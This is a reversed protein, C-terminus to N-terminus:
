ESVIRSNSVMNDPVSGDDNPLFYILLSIKGSLVLSVTVALFVAVTMGWNM